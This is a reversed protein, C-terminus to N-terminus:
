KKDTNKEQCIAINKNLVWKEPNKIIYQSIRHYAHRNRIIRDYYNRQWLKDMPENKMKYIKLIHNAVLSKYAGVIDSISAAAPSTGAKRGFNDNLINSVDMNENQSNVPDPSITINTAETEITDPEPAVALPAVALTAGRATTGLAIIAHMHDPMIQFVDLNMNPFREPLKKWEEDAIKGFENLIMCGNEIKGFVHRKNQCCITIFYYGPSSYDYDKLRMSRRHHIQPNYQKM